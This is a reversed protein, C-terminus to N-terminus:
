IQTYQTLILSSLFWSSIERRRRRYVVSPSSRRRSNRRSFLFKLRNARRRRRDSSTIAFQNNAHRRKFGHFIKEKKAKGREPSRVKFQYPEIDLDEQCMLLDHDYKWM